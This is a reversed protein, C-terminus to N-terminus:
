IQFLGAQRRGTHNVVVDGARDPQTAIRRINIRDDRVGLARDTRGSRDIKRRERPRAEIQLDLRVVNHEHVVIPAGNACDRVQLDDSRILVHMDSTIHVDLTADNVQRLGYVPANRIQLIRRQPRGDIGDPQSESQQRLRIRQHPVQTVDDFGTHRDHRALNAVPVRVLVVEAVHALLKGLEVLSEM